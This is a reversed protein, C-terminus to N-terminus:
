AVASTPQQQRQAAALRACAVDDAVMAPEALECREQDLILAVTEACSGCCDAVGTQVQVDTVSALDWDVIASRLERETIGHCICAYM